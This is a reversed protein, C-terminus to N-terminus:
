VLCGKIEVYTNNYVARPVNLRKGVLVNILVHPSAPQYSTLFALYTSNSGVSRVAIIVYM